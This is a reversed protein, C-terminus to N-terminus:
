HVGWWCSWSILWDYHHHSPFWQTELVFGNTLLYGEHNTQVRLFVQHTLKNKILTVIKNKFKIKILKKKSKEQL